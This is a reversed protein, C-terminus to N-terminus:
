PRAETPTAQWESPPPEKNGQAQCQSSRASGQPGGGGVGLKSRVTPLIPKLAPELVWCSRAIQLDPYLIVWVQACWTDGSRRTPGPPPPIVSSPDRLQLPSPSGSSSQCSPSPLPVLPANPFPPSVSPDPPDLPPDCLFFHHPPTPHPRGSSGAGGGRVARSNTRCSTGWRRFVGSERMWGKIGKNPPPVNGRSMIEKTVQFGDREKKKKRTFM